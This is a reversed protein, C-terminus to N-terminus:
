SLNTMIDDPCKKASTKGTFILTFVVRFVAIPSIEKEKNISSRKLLRGIKQNQFFQHIQNECYVIDSAIQSMTDGRANIPEQQPVFGM